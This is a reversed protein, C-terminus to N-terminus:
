SNAGVDIAYQFIFRISKEGESEHRIMHMDQYGAIRGHCQSIDYSEDFGVGRFPYVFILHDGTFECPLGAISCKGHAFRLNVHNAFIDGPLLLM